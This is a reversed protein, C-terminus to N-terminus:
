AQAAPAGEAPAAADPGNTSTTTTQAQGEMPQAEGEKAEGNTKEAAETADAAAGGKPTGRPDAPVRRLLQRRRKEVVDGDGSEEVDERAIGFLALAGLIAGLTIGVAASTSLGRSSTGGATLTRGGLSPASFVQAYDVSFTNSEGSSDNGPLVRLTVEHSGSGLNTAQYLLMNPRFFPKNTTYNNPLANGINIAVEYAAGKPGVPGYLAVADGEFSFKMTAGAQASTRGTGGSFTAPNPSNSTWAEPPSYSFSPDSEQFTNVILDEDAKGVPTTWTVFDVDVPLGPNANNLTVTHQVNSLPISAFLETQFNGPADARANRPDYQKQDVTIQYFGYNPRKAGFINVNTGSFVFFVNSTATGDTQMYSGGSYLQLSDNGPRWQDSFVLLPSMDEVLLTLNPMARITQRESGDRDRELDTFRRKSPCLPSLRASAHKLSAARSEVLGATIFGSQCFMDPLPACNASHLLELLCFANGPIVCRDQAVGTIGEGEDGDKSDIYGIGYSAAGNFQATPCKFGLFAPCARDVANCTEICPLLMQYPSDFRPLAANRPPTSTQYPLLASLVQQEQNKTASLGTVTPEPRSPRLGM